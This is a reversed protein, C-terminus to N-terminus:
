RLSTISPPPLGRSPSGSAGRATEAVTGPARGGAHARRGARAACRLHSTVTGEDLGMVAAIVTVPLGLGHRLVVTDAQLAPLVTSPALAGASRQAAAVRTRLVQWAVACPRASGMVRPWMMVLEGLAGEVCRCAAERDGLHHIAYRLYLPHHQLCFATYAVPLHIVVSPPAGSGPSGACGPPATWTDTHPRYIPM